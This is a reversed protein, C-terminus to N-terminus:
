SDYTVFIATDEDDSTEKKDPELLYDEIETYDKTPDSRKKSVRKKRHIIDEHTHYKNLPTVRDGITYVRARCKKNWWQNCRWLRKLSGDNLNIM